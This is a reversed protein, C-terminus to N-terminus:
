CQEMYAKLGAKRAYVRTNGNKVFFDSEHSRVYDMIKSWIRGDPDNKSSNYCVLDAYFAELYGCTRARTELDSVTGPIDFTRYFNSGAEKACYHVFKRSNDYSMIIATDMDVISELGFVDIIKREEM